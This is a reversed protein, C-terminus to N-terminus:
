RSGAGRHAKAALRERAADIEIVHRRHMGRCITDVGDHGEFAFTIARGKVEIVSVGLEVTMGLPTAALHDLEVRTGVSDQGPDLHALLLQRCASEVDLVLSPTAYIRLSEGLFDITRPRDIEFRATSAIGQVLSPKM